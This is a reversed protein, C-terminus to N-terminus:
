NEEPLTLVWTDDLQSSVHWNDGEEPDAVHGTEDYEYVTLVLKFRSGADRAAQLKEPTLFLMLGFRHVGESEEYSYFSRDGSILEGNEDLYGVMNVVADTLQLGNQEAYEAYTLTAEAADSGFPAYLRTGWSDFGVLLRDSVGDALRYTGTAYLDEEGWVADDLTFVVDGLRKSQGAYAAAGDRMDIKVQSDPGGVGHPGLYMEATRSLVAAVATATLALLLAAVVIAMRPSLARHVPAEEPANLEQLTQRVKAEFREPVDGYTQQFNLDHRLQKM